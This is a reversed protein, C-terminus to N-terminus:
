PHHPTKAQTTSAFDMMMQKMDDQQIIKQLQAVQETLRKIQSRADRSAVSVCAVLMRQVFVVRSLRALVRQMQEGGQLRRLRGRSSSSCPRTLKRACFFFLLPHTRAQLEQKLQSNERKLSEAEASNGSDRSQSGQQQM